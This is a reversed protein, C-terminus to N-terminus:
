LDRYVVSNECLGNECAYDLIGKLIDELEMEKSVADEDISSIAISSSEKRTDGGNLVKYVKNYHNKLLIEELIHRYQPTIVLIVRDIYESKEFIEITHELVTKGAVKAFQKPLDDSFRTGLGSALIVGYLM